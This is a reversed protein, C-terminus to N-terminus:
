NNISYPHKIMKFWHITQNVTKSKVSNEAKLETIFIFKGKSILIFSCSIKEKKM